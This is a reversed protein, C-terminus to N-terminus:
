IFAKLANDTIFEVLFTSTKDEFLRMLDIIKENQYEPHKLVIPHLAYSVLNAEEIDVNINEVFENSSLIIISDFLEAYYDEICENSVLIISNPSKIKNLWEMTKKDVEFDIYVICFQERHVYLMLNYLLIFQEQNTLNDTDIRLTQLIKSVSFNTTNITLNIHLGNKLINIFKFMGEDTLLEILNKRVNDISQYMQPNEEVFKELESNVLTKPKFDYIASLDEKSSIYIFEISKPNILEGEEDNVICKTKKKQGFYSNLCDLLEYKNNAEYLLHLGSKVPIMFTHENSQIKM